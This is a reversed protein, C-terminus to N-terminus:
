NSSKLLNRAMMLISQYDPHPPLQTGEKTAKIALNSWEQFHRDIAVALQKSNDDFTNKTQANTYRVNAEALAVDAEAKRQTAQM